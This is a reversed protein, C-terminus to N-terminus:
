LEKSVILQKRGQMPCIILEVCFLRPPIKIIISVSKLRDVPVSFPLKVSHAVSRWATM